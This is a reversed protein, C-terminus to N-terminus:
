LYVWSSNITKFPHSKLCKSFKFVQDFTNTTKAKEKFLLCNPGLTITHGSTGPDDYTNPHFSWPHKRSKSHGPRRWLLEFREGHGQGVSCGPFCVPLSTSWVLDWNDSSAARIGTWPICKTKEWMLKPPPGPDVQPGTLASGHSTLPQYWILESLDYVRVQPWLTLSWSCWCGPLVTLASLGWGGVLM